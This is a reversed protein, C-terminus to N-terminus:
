KVITWRLLELVRNLTTDEEHYLKMKVIGINPCLYHQDNIDYIAFGSSGTISLQYNSNIKCVSSFHNSNLTYSGLITIISGTDVYPNEKIFSDHKPYGVSFIGKLGGMHAMEVYIEDDHFHFYWEQSDTVPLPSVRYDTITIDIYDRWDDPSYRGGLNYKRTPTNSTVSFSDIRGTTSDRYIWYTGPLFNFDKKIADNVPYGYVTKNNKTCSTIILVILGITFLLINKM